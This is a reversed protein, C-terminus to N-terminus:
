GLKERARRVLAQVADQSRKRLEEPDSGPLLPEGVELAVRDERMSALRKWHPWFAEDGYLADPSQYAIGVPVVEAGARQAAVFAGGRFPRVEDDTFTTGEPFVLVGRGQALADAMTSVATAGSRRSARDVFITGTRRAALGVLPWNAVDSRSLANAEFFSLYLYVDLTSRHNMAFVRGVGRADRGPLFADEPLSTVVRGGMLRVITLGYRRMWRHMVQAKQARPALLRLLEMAVLYVATVLALGATRYLVRMQRVPM